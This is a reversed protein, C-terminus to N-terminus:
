DIQEYVAVFIHGTVDSNKPHARVMATRRNLPVLDGSATGSVGRSMSGLGVSDPFLDLGHRVQSAGKVVYLRNETVPLDIQAHVVQRGALSAVDSSLMRYTHGKYVVERDFWVGDKVQRPGREYVAIGPQPAVARDAHKIVRVTFTSPKGPVVDYREWARANKDPSDAFSAEAGLTGEPKGSCTSFSLRHGNLALAFEAGKDIGNVGADYCFDTWMLNGTSPTFTVTVSDQGPSAVARGILKAGGPESYFTVGNDSVTRLSDTRETPQTEDSRGLVWPAVTVAAVAVAAAACTALVTTRRNTVAKHDVGDLRQGAGLDQTEDAITALSQKLEDINM